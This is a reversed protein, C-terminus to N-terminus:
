KTMSGDAIQADQQARPQGILSRYGSLPSCHGACGSRGRQPCPSAALGPRSGSAEQVGRPSLRVRARVALDALRGCGYTFQAGRDVSKGSRGRTPLAAQEDSRRCPTHHPGPSDASAAAAARPSPRGPRPHFVAAMPVSGWCARQGACRGAPAKPL